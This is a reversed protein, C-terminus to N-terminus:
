ALTEAEQQGLQAGERMPQEGLAEGSEVKVGPVEPHQAVETGGLAPGLLREAVRQTDVAAGHDGEDVVELM